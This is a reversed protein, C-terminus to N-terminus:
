VVLRFSDVCSSMHRPLKTCVYMNGSNLPILDVDHLIMCKYGANIAMRTGINLLKGRNFPMNDKQEVIFIKYHIYQNQLFTHMYDLFINLQEQRDRYPVIIATKYLPSCTKPAYEGGVFIFGYSRNHLLLYFWNGGLPQVYNRVNSIDYISIEQKNKIVNEYDCIKLNSENDLNIVLQKITDETPIYTYYKAHREPHFTVIIVIVFATIITLRKYMEGKKVNEPM